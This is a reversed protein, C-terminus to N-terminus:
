KWETICQITDVVKFLININNLDITFTMSGLIENM